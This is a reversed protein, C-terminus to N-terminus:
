QTLVPRRWDHRCSNRPARVPGSPSFSVTTESLGLLLGGEDLTVIGRMAGGVRPIEVGECARAGYAGGRGVHEGVELRLEM